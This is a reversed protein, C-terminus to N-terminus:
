RATARRRVAVGAASLIAAFGLTMAVASNGSELSLPLSDTPAQSPLPVPEVGKPTMPVAQRTAEPHKFHVHFDKFRPVKHDLDPLVQHDPIDLIDDSHAEGPRYTQSHDCGCDNDVGIPERGHGDASAIAPAFLAGSMVAVAIGAASKRNLTM